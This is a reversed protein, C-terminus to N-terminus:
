DGGAKFMFTLVLIVLMVLIQGMVIWVSLWGLFAFFFSLTVGIGGAIFVAGISRGYIIVVLMLGIIIFLSIINATASDSGFLENKSATMLESTSAKRCLGDVCEGSRCEYDYTCGERAGKYVCEGYMCKGTICDADDTCPDGVSYTSNYTAQTHYVNIYDFVEHEMGKDLEDHLQLLLGDFCESGSDSGLTVISCGSSDGNVYLSYSNAPPNLDILVTNTYNGTKILQNTNECNSGLPRLNLLSLRDTTEARSITFANDSAGCRMTLISRSTGTKNTDNEGVNFGLEIITRGLESLNFTSLKSLSASDYLGCNNDIVGFGRNTSNLYIPVSSFLGCSGTQSFTWGRTTFADGYEFNEEMQAYFTVGFYDVAHVTFSCLIMSIILALFYKKMKVRDGHKFSIAENMPLQSGRFLSKSIYGPM